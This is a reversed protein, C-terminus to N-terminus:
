PLHGHLFWRGSSDHFIWFRFGQDDEIRYYDRTGWCSIKDRWWEATLREPGECRLIRHKRNGIFFQVPSEGPILISVEIRVPPDILRVPRVRYNPWEASEAMPATAPRFEMAHEPLFSECVQIRNVEQFGLRM